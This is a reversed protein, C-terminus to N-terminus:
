GDIELGIVPEFGALHVDLPGVDDPIGGFTAALNASEGPPIALNALDTTCLCDGESDVVPLYIKQEEQDVLGAGSLDYGTAGSDGSGFKDWPEFTLEDAETNTPATENTLVLSMEVLDGNRELRTVDIRLRVLRDDGPSAPQQGPASGLVEREGNSDDSAVDDAQRDGGDGSDGAQSEGEEDDAAAGENRDDGDSGCAVLGIVMMLAAVAALLHPWRLPSTSTRTSIVGM